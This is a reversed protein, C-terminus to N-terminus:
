GHIAVGQALPHAKEIRGRMREYSSHLYIQTTAINEHGLFDKVAFVDAGGDLLHTAISHRFKHTSVKAPDVGALEAYKKTVLWIANTSIPNGKQSVFFQPIHKGRTFYDRIQNYDKLAQVADDGVIPVVREKGRKAHKIHVGEFNEEFDQREIGALEARRLGCNYLLYLIARDRVGIPTDACTANLISQVDEKTLAKPMSKDTGRFNEVKAAPNTSILGLRYLYDFFSRVGSIKTNITRKSNGKTDLLYAKYDLIDAEKVERPDKQVWELFEQVASSYLEVTRDALGKKFRLDYKYRNIM